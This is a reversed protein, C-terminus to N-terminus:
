TPEKSIRLSLSFIQCLIMSKINVFRGHEPLISITASATVSCATQVLPETTSYRRALALTAPEFGTEHELISLNRTNRFRKKIKVAAQFISRVLMKFETM